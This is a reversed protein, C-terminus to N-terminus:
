TINKKSITVFGKKQRTLEDIDADEKIERNVVM